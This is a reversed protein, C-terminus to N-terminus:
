TNNYHYYRSIKGKEKLSARIAYATANLEVILATNDKQPNVLTILIKDPILSRRYSWDDLFELPQLGAAVILEVIKTFNSGFGTLEHYAGLRDMFYASNEKFEYETCLYPDYSYAVRNIGLGMFVESFVLDTFNAALAKSADSENFFLLIKERNPEHHALFATCEFSNVIEELMALSHFYIWDFIQEGNSEYDIPEEFKYSSIRTILFISNETVAPLSLKSLDTTANLRVYAFEIASNRRTAYDHANASRILFESVDTQDEPTQFFVVTRFLGLKTQYIAYELEAYNMEIIDPENEDNRKGFTHKHSSVTSPSKGSSSGSDEEYSGFDEPTLEKTDVLSVEPQEEVTRDAPEALSETAEAPEHTSQETSGENPTESLNFSVLLCLILTLKLYKSM